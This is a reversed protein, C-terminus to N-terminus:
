YKIFDKGYLRNLEDICHAMGLGEKTPKWLGDTDYAGGGMCYDYQKHHTHKLREFRNKGKELHAGFGCFICGTRDCGTTCLKSGCDCLISNYQVGDRAGYVIDGYVSAIPLGHAKIYQLVDQETWFSMPKSVGENFANCGTKLWATRRLMSEEAMTAVFMKKKYHRFPKKKIENCCRNSIKFDVTLLDKWKSFDYRKSFFGGIGLIQLTRTPFRGQSNTITNQTIIGGGGGALCRRANEVRESVEKSIFPYGFESIIKDFSIQPYLVTVNQFSKAFERIEPYELGTNCFVAEIKPFMERIIHLLVTSDKGGSFSVACNEIGYYDVWERIRLQTKKIKLNLPYAQMIRLEENTPM